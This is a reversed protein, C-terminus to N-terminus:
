TLIGFIPQNTKARTHHGAQLM